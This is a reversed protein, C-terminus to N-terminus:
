ETLSVGASGPGPHRPAPPPARWTLHVSVNASATASALVASTDATFELGFEVTVEDPRRAMSSLEGIVGEAVTRIPQLAAEFTREARGVLSSGGGLGRTVLDESATPRVRVLLTSGDASTFEVIDV